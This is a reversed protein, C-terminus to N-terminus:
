RCSQTIDFPEGEPLFIERPGSLDAAFQSRHAVCYPSPDSLGFRNRVQNSVSASSYRREIRTGLRKLREM